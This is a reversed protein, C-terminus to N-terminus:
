DLYIKLCVVNSIGWELKDVLFVLCEMFLSQYIDARVRIEDTIQPVVIFRNEFTVRVPKSGKDDVVLRM